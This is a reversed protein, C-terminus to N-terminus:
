RQITPISTFASANFRLGLVAVNGSAVVFAASGRNGAMGGLGSLSRLTAETKSQPALPVSSTGIVNGSSDWVTISVVVPVSSPNAIAVATTFDTDDWTLTSSTASAASLPVVAEQDPRGSISQRFIGYGTVGVPLALSVYGQSLSGANPAEIIASGNPAITVQTSTGLGPVTLPTGGDSTFNVPFSVASANTNTFYLASYWGGGFVFQPLVSQILQPQATGVVTTGGDHEMFLVNGGGVVAVIYNATGNQDTIQATGSCDSAISYTGAGSVQSAGAGLNAVSVTTIGGSGNSVVQGADSYLFSGSQQSVQGSLLYGYAGTLLANGCQSAGGSVARYARGVVVAGSSSFAVVASQGGDVIQFAITETSQSNVSLTLTGTCDGQVTYSGSLSFPALSGGISATSQGAVGGNGDAILKGLEAYPAVGTGATVSGGLVYFYTGNLSSNTCTQAQARFSPLSVLLITGLTAIIRNM